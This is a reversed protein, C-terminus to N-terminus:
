FQSSGTRLVGGLSAARSASPLPPEAREQWSISCSVVGLSRLCLGVLEKVADSGINQVACGTWPPTGSCLSPGPTKLLFRPPEQLSNQKAGMGSGTCLSMLEMEGPHQSSNCHSARRHRSGAIGLALIALSPCRPCGQLATVIDLTGTASCFTVATPNWCEQDQVWWPRVGMVFGRVRSWPNARQESPAPAAGCGESEVVDLKGKGPSLEPGLRPNRTQLQPKEACYIFGQNVQCFVRVRGPRRPSCPPGPRGDGDPLTLRERRSRLNM